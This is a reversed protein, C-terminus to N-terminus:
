RAIEIEKSKKCALVTLVGGLIVTLVIPVILATFDGASQYLHTLLYTPFFRGFSFLSFIDPAASVFLIMTAAAM